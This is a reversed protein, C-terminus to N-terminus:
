MTTCKMTEAAAFPEGVLTLTGKLLVSSKAFDVKITGAFTSSDNKLSADEADDVVTGTLVHGGYILVYDTNRSTGQTRHEFVNLALRSSNCVLWSSDGSHVPLPEATAPPEARPAVPAAPTAPAPQSILQGEGSAAEQGESGGCGVLVALAMGIYWSITKSM